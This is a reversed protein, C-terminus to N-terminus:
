SSYTPINEHTAEKLYRCTHTYFSHLTMKGSNGGLQAISDDVQLNDSQIIQMLWLIFTESYAGHLADDLMESSLPTTKLRHQHIWIDKGLADDLGLFRKSLIYGFIADDGLPTSGSGLGIIDSGHTANPQTLFLQIKEQVLRHEELQWPFQSQLRILRKEFSQNLWARSMHNVKRPPQLWLKAQQCDVKMDDQFILQRDKVQVRMGSPFTIFADLDDTNLVIRHPGNGISPSVLHCIYTDGLQLTIVDRYLRVIIGGKPHSLHPILQQDVSNARRLKRRLM